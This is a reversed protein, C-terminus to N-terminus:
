HDEAGIAIVAGDDDPATPDGALADVTRVTMGNTPASIATTTIKEGPRAGSDIYVFSADTRLIGVSRIEIKEDDTIFLLQDSGRVASRPVRIVDVANSGAISAAVFTGIPLPVGASHLKYPDDIHAVVYTVRSREDVVGESRVIQAEWSVRRGKQITSLTVAPGAASGTASVERTAPIAVFALDQDTLPLRVEAFNTAFTAGLRTGPNVYQGLDADKSLVMGEYPLRIATRVLNRQANVLEARASALAAAASALEAEARYGQLRLKEAGDFEIQRQKLLAEARLVAAEYNSPDIRMLVEGARFVGGAVFKASLDVISGSVEASLITQTRPRVVGQSEIMFHETTAELEFVDVLLPLNEVDKKPPQPRLAMLVAALAMTGAFIGVVLLIRRTKRQM